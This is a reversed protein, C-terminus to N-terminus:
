LAVCRELTLSAVDVGVTVEAKGCGSLTLVFDQVVGSADTKQGIWSGSTACSCGATWRLSDPTLSVSSGDLNDTVLLTGSTMQRTARTTGSIQLASTTSVAIDVTRTGSANEFYRRIGSVQYTYSSTGTKTVTQGATTPSYTVVGVKGGSRGVLEFNPVRRISDSNNNITCSSGSSFVFKVEGSLTLPGFVCQDYTVTRENSTCASYSASYCSGGALASVASSTVTSRSLSEDAAGMLDGLAHAIENNTTGVSAGEGGCAAVLGLLAMTLCRSGVLNAKMM